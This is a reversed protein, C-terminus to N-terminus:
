LRQPERHQMQMRPKTTYHFKDTGTAKITPNNHKETLTEEADSSHAVEMADTRGGTYETGSWRDRLYADSNSSTHRV